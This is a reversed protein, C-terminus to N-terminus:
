HWDENSHKPQLLCLCYEGAFNKGSVNVILTPLKRIYKLTKLDCKKLLNKPRNKREEKNAELNFSSVPDTGFDAMNKRLLLACTNWSIRQIFCISADDVAAILYDSRSVYSSKVNGKLDKIIKNIWFCLFLFEFSEKINELFIEVTPVPILSMMWQSLWVLFGLM